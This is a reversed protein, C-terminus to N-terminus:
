FRKEILEEHFLSLAGIQCHEQGGEEETFIRVTVSRANKLGQKFEDVQEVPIFHDKKGATILVDCTIKEAELNYQGFIKILDTPNKTGMAWQGNRVGWRLGPTTKMKMKVLENVTDTYGKEYLYRIFGPAQKLAAEQFDYGVNYVVVGDIRKDNAAARPALYGGLSIGILIIQEPRSYRKLFEDIVAGTPKEWEHTFRLGQERLVSGQGPGEYTLCSFGRDLAAKVIFFYLEELTSDYGGNIIILPKKDSGVNGPYYIAKLTHSGYPIKIIQHEVQLAKLGYIFTDRSKHFAPLRRKDEPHLFFEAARNYNCARLFANGRSVPNKLSEAREEVRKAMNSWALYWTEDDGEPVQKIITLVEGIESGGAHGESMIRLAQMHYTQDEYLRTIGNPASCGGFLLGPIIWLIWLLQNIKM